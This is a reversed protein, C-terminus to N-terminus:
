PRPISIVQRPILMAKIRYGTGKKDTSEARVSVLGPCSYSNRSWKKSSRTYVIYTHLRHVGSVFHGPRARPRSLETESTHKCAMLATERLKGSVQIITFPTEALRRSSFPLFKRFCHRIKEFENSTWQADSTRNELGNVRKRSKKEEWVTYKILSNSRLKWKRLLPLSLLTLRYM